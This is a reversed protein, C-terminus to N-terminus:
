LGLEDFFAEVEANIVAILEPASFVFVDPADIDDMFVRIIFPTQKGSFVVSLTMERESDFRTGAIFAGVRKIESETFGESVHQAIRLLLPRVNAIDVNFSTESLSTPNAM